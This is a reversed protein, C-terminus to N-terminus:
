KLVDKFEDLFEELVPKANPAFPNPGCKVELLAHKFQRMRQEHEQEFTTMKGELKRLRDGIRVQANMADAVKLGLPDAVLEGLGEIQQDHVESRQRLRRNEAELAAIRDSLNQFLVAMDAANDAFTNAVKDNLDKIARALKIFDPTPTTM